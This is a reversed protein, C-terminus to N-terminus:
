SSKTQIRLLDMSVYFPIVYKSSNDTNIEHGQCCFAASASHKGTKQGATRGDTWENDM